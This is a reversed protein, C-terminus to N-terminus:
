IKELIEKIQTIKKENILLNRIKRKKKRKKKRIRKKELFEKTIDYTVKTSHSNEDCNQNQNNQISIEIIKLSSDKIDDFGAEEFFIVNDENM